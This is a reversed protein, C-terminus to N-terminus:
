LRSAADPIVEVRVAIGLQGHTRVIEGREPGLIDLLQQEVWEGSTTAVLSHMRAFEERTVHIVPSPSFPAPDGAFPTTSM